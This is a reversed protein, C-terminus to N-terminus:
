GAGLARQIDWVLVTLMLLVMFLVGLQQARERLTVSVPRGRVAELLFFLLQGGDLVPVPLLNVIGLSISLMAMLRAYDFIGRQAAKSTQRFIEVPGGVSQKVDVERTLMSGLTDLVFRASAVTEETARTVAPVFAYRVRVKPGATHGGMSVVGIVPRWYYRALQDTDEIVEPTMSLSVVAGERAVDVQVARATAREGEGEMSARVLRLVDSWTRTPQGDIAVFRDGPRIGAQEAPSPPPEAAPQPGCGSLFGGTEQPAVSPSVSAVFLSTPLLGWTQAAPGDPAPQIPAWTPDRTLTVTRAVAEGEVAQVVDLTVKQGADTLANELAIWDRVEAGDVAEIVAGTSLGARGAPSGPDDIGVEATPRSSSLGIRANEIGGEPLTLTLDLLRGDRDVQLRHPGEPLAVLAEGVESFTRLGEREGIAVIRDGPELGAEAALGDASLSGVENSPRPEGAMLLVTFVIVPLVLNMAPGAAIVLLRQWVPRRHFAMSPDALQQDLDEDYSFPDAGALAVYGGFPIMSIRYDTGNHEFGVLRRGFGLSFTTVAVGCAKAVIFHGFEHIFVLSAIAVVAALPGSLAGLDPMAALVASFHM